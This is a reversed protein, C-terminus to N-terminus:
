EHIEGEQSSTQSPRCVSITLQGLKGTPETACVRVAFSGEIGTGHEILSTLQGEFAVPLKGTLLLGQGSNLTQIALTEALKAPLVDFDVKQINNPLTNISDAAIIWGLPTLWPGSMAHIDHLFETIQQEIQQNM